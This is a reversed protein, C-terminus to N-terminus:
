SHMLVVEAGAQQPKVVGVGTTLSPLCTEKAAKKNTEKSTKEKKNMKKENTQRTEKTREETERQTV